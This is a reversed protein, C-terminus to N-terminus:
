FLNKTTATTKPNKGASKSLVKESKPETKNVRHYRWETGWAVPLFLCWHFLLKSILISGRPQLYFSFKLSIALTLL